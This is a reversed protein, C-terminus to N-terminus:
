VVFDFTKIAYAPPIKLSYTLFFNDPHTSIVFHYEISFKQRFNGIFDPRFNVGNKGAWGYFYHVNEEIYVDM